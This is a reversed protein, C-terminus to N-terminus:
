FSAEMVKQTTKSVCLCVFLSAFIYGGQHLYYAATYIMSKIYIQNHPVRDYTICAALQKVLIDFFHHSFLCSITCWSKMTCIYANM